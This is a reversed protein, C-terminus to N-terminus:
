RLRRGRSYQGSRTLAVTTQLLYLECVCVRIYIYHYPYYKFREEYILLTLRCSTFVLPTSTLPHSRQVPECVLRQPPQHGIAPHLLSLADQPLRRCQIARVGLSDQVDEPALGQQMDTAPRRGCLQLRHMLYVLYVLYVLSLGGCWFVGSLVAHEVEDAVTRDEEAGGDVAESPSHTQRRERERTERKKNRERERCTVSNASWWRGHHQVAKM